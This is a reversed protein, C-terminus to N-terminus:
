AHGGGGGLPRDQDDPVLRATLRSPSWLAAPDIYVGGRRAGVHVRGGTRGVPTASRVRQGTDVLIEALFSYSTRIGDAHLVVVHLTGGVQGAFVVVGDAMAVVVQGPATAFEVGRHGPGYPTAPPRFPDSIPADVPKRYVVPGAPGSSEPGPLAATVALVAGADARDAPDALDIPDIPDLPRPSITPKPRHDTAPRDAAPPAALAAAPPAPSAAPRRPAPEGAVILVLASAAVFPVRLM